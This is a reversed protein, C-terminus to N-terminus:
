RDLDNFFWSTWEFIQQSIRSRKILSLAGVIVAVCACSEIFTVARRAVGDVLDGAM